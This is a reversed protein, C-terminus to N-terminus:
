CRHASHRDLAAGTRTAFVYDAPTTSEERLSFLVAYAAANVGVTRSKRGKGSAVFLHAGRNDKRPTVDEWTLALVESIRAGSSYLTRVLACEQATQCSDLIRALDAVSVTHSAVNQPVHPPELM